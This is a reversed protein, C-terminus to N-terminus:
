GDRQQILEAVTRGALVSRPETATPRRRADAAEDGEVSGRSLRRATGTSSWSKLVGDVEIRFHHSRAQHEQVVLRPREGPRRRRGPPELTRGPVRRRSYEQLGRDAM